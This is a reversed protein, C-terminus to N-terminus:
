RDIHRSLFFYDYYVLYVSVHVPPKRAWRCRAPAQITDIPENINSSIAGAKQCFKVTRRDYESKEKSPPQFTRLGLAALYQHTKQLTKWGGIAVTRRSKPFPPLQFFIKLDSRYIQSCLFLANGGAGNKGETKEAYGCACSVGIGSSFCHTLAGTTRGLQCTTEKAASLSRSLNSILLQKLLFKKLRSAQSPNHNM